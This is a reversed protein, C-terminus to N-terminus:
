HPWSSGWSADHGAKSTSLDTTFSYTFGSGIETLSALFLGFFYGSLIMQHQSPPSYHLIQCFRGHVSNYAIHCSSRTFSERFDSKLECLTLSASEFISTLMKQLLNTWCAESMSLIHFLFLLTQVEMSLLIVQCM